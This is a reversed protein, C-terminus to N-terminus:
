ADYIYPIIYGDEDVKGIQVFQLAGWLILAEEFLMLVVRNFRM